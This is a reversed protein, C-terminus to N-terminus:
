RRRLGSMSRWAFADKFVEIEPEGSAPFYVSVVDFRSYTQPQQSRLFLTAMKRLEDQKAADVAMEAPVLGHEGPAQSSRTKVEIFCLTDGDWGVLDLEGRFGKVRWNRAVMVYGLHRLHRYAVQEGRRGTRLHPPLPATGALIRRVRQVAATWRGALSREKM